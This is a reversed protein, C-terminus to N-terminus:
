DYYDENRKLVKRLVYQSGFVITVYALFGYVGYFFPYREWPFFPHKPLILDAVMLVALFLYFGMVIKKVNKPNDFVPEEKM